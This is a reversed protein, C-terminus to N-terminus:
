WQTYYAEELTKREEKLPLIKPQFPEKQANYADLKFALMSSKENVKRSTGNHWKQSYKAMEQIAVKADAATKSPIAGRSDLILGLHTISGTPKSEEALPKRCGALSMLFARLMVQDITINPIHFLDVIELVKEIHEYADEHDSGGRDMTLKPRAGTNCMTEEEAMTEAVEEESYEQDSFLNFDPSRLEDLTLTKFHKRSSRFEREPDKFPTLLGNMSSRTKSNEEHIKTSESMFKSITDEM